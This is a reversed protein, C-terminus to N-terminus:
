PKHEAQRLLHEPPAKVDWALGVLRLGRIVYGSPDIQWWRLGHMASYPFAHHNNHWGEGWTPIAIWFNNRSQDHTHTDYPASGFLHAISGISWTAHQCLCVRVLGGWLLGLGAGEWSWALLGGLAAPIALGLLVWVFYLRNIRYVMRDRLLDLIYRSWDTVQGAFLWGIHSHWAGRLWGVVGPGSLHPSHPDGPLDAFAHHRRHIATWYLIPGQAGMSGLIALTARVAPTTQFSNHAFHRHFGVMVGTMTLSYMGALLGLEIPGVGRGWLLVIALVLALFPTLVVVLAIRRERRRARANATSAGAVVLAPAPELSQVPTDLM